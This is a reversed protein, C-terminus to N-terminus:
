AAVKGLIDALPRSVLSELEALVIVQCHIAEKLYEYSQQFGLPSAVSKAGHLYVGCDHQCDRARTLKDM